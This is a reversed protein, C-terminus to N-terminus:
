SLLQLAQKLRLKARQKAQAPTAGAALEAAVALAREHKTFAGSELDEPDDPLPDFILMAAQAAAKQPDTAADKFVIQWTTRDEVQVIKVGRIPALTELHNHLKIPFNNDIM